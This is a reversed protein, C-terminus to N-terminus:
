AASRVEGSAPRVQLWYNVLLVPVTIVPLLLLVVVGKGASLLSNLTTNGVEGCALGVQCWGIVLFAPVFQYFRLLFALVLAASVVVSWRLLAPSNGSARSVARLSLAFLPYAFFFLLALTLLAAVPEAHPGTFPLYTYTAVLATVLASGVVASVNRAQM